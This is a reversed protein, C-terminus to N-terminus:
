SKELVYGLWIDKPNVLSASKSFDIVHFGVREFLKRLARGDWLYFTRGDMAANVGAGQKLSVYVITAQTFNTINELLSALKDHEIHVLSGSFLLGDAQLGSFDFTEFDGEIVECGANRRALDALAPSREFGIVKFGGKKLWLLDRGSGCGIDLITAGAKLNEAFPTLFSAPDVFFTKEHYTRYNQQYYDSM